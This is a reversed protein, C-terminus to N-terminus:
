GRAGPCCALTTSRSAKALGSPTAPAPAIRELRRRVVPLALLPAGAPTDVAPIKAVIDVFAVHGQADAAGPKLTVDLLPAAQALAANASVLAAFSVAMALTHRIM